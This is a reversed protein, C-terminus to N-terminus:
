PLLEQTVISFAGVHFGREEWCPKPPGLPCGPAPLAKSVKRLPCPPRVGRRGLGRPVRWSARHPHESMHEEGTGGRDLLSGTGCSNPPILSDRLSQSISLFSNIGVDADWPPILDDSVDHAKENGFNGSEM